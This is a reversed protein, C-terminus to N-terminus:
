VYSWIVYANQRLNKDTNSVNVRIAKGTDVDYFTYFGPKINNCCLFRAKAIHKSKIDPCLIFLDPSGWARTKRALKLDLKYNDVDLISADESILSAIVWDNLCKDQYLSM